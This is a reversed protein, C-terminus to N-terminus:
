VNRSVDKHQPDLQDWMSAVIKSVEGFSASPNHGKITAQTDRFFLAYASVPKQPENPDKKKKRKSPKGKKGAPPSGTPPNSETPSATPDPFSSSVDTIGPGISSQSAKTVMTAPMGSPSCSVAIGTTRKLAIQALPLDDSDDSSSTGTPSRSVPLQPTTLQNQTTMVAPDPMNNPHCFTMAMGDVATQNSIVPQPIAMCGSTATVHSFLPGTDAMDRVSSFISQDFHENPSVSNSFSIDPVEFNQPPFKPALSELPNDRASVSTSQRQGSDSKISDIPLSNLTM